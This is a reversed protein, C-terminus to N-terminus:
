LLHLGLPQHPIRVGVAQLRVPATQDRVALNLLTQYWHVSLHSPRTPPANRQAGTVAWKKMRVYVPITVATVGPIALSITPERTSVFVQFVTFNRFIQVVSFNATIIGFSSCYQKIVSYPTLLICVFHFVTCYVMILSSRLSCSCESRARYQKGMGTDTRFCPIVVTLTIHCFFLCPPYKTIVSPCNEDTRWLFM